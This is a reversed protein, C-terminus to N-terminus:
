AVAQIRAAQPAAITAMREVRYASPQIAIIVILALILAAFGFLINRLM